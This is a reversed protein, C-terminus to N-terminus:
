SERKVASEHWHRLSLQAIVTTVIYIAIGTSSILV